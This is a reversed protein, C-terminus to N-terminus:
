YGAATDITNLLPQGARMRKINDVIQAVSSRPDTMAAIHPTLLVGPHSWLPSDPPLPEARFVDLAAGALQGGDLAALLDTEVLQRGRGINIVYGGRPMAAFAKANLIDTTDPTLPLVCIVIDSGALFPTLGEAGAFSKVGEIAKPRRSWGRVDFGLGVLARAAAGGIEGLGMVGVRREHTQKLQQEKWVKGRQQAEYAPIQRHFRLTYLVAYEVMQSTLRTDIMRVIPLHRPLRPDNFLHDVGAGLSFIVKL